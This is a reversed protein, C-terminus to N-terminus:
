QKDVKVMTTEVSSMFQEDAVQFNDTIAANKGIIVAPSRKAAAWV